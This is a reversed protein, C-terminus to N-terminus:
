GLAGAIVGSGNRSASVQKKSFTRSLHLLIADM